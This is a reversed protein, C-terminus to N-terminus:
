RRPEPRFAITTERSKRLKQELDAKREAIRSPETMYVMVTDGIRIVDGDTVEVPREIRRENVFTGNSSGFDVVMHNEAGPIANLQVHRRSVSEDAISFTCDAHRGIMVIAHQELDLHRGIEPGETIIVCAM